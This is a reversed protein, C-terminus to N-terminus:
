ELLKNADVSYGAAKLEKLIDLRWHEGADLPIYVIGHLDSPPDIGKEYLACVHDRGLSGIFYGWEFVVNQRARPRANEETKAKGVDDATMVIIAFGVDAHKIFKEMLTMGQNAKEHLIVPELGLKKILNAVKDRVKGDHGHVIFVKGNDKPTPAKTNAPFIAAASSVTAESKLYHRLQDGATKSRIVMSSIQFNKIKKVGAASEFNHGGILGMKMLLRIVRQLDIQSVGLAARRQLQTALETMEHLGNKNLFYMEELVPLIRNILAEDKGWYPSAVYSGLSFALGGESDQYLTGDRLLDDFADIKDKARHSDEFESYPFFAAEDRFKVFIENLLGEQAPNRVSHSAQQLRAALRLKEICGELLALQTSIREIRSEEIEADTRMGIQLGDWNAYFVDGLVQSDSAFSKSLLDRMFTEWVMYARKDIPRKTLIGKLREIQEELLPIAQAPAISPPTASPSVPRKAM